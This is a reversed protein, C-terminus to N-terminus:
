CRGEMLTTGSPMQVGERYIVDNLVQRGDSDYKGFCPVASPAPLAFVFDINMMVLTDVDLFFAKNYPLLASDFLHLKLFMRQEALQHTEPIHDLFKPDIHEIDPVVRIQWYVRLRELWWNQVDHTVLLICDCYANMFQLSQGLAMGHLLVEIKSGFLLSVYAYREDVVDALTCDLAAMRTPWETFAFTTM